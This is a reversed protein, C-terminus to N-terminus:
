QNNVIILPYDIVLRHGFTKHGILQENIDNILLQHTRNSMRERIIIWRNTM